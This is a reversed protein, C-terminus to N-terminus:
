DVIIILKSHIIPNVFNTLTISGAGEVIRKNLLHRCYISLCCAFYVCNFSTHYMCIFLVSPLINGQIKSVLIKCVFAAAFLYFLLLKVLLILNMDGLRWDYIHAAINKKSAPTVRPERVWRPFRSDGWRSFLLTPDGITEWLIFM